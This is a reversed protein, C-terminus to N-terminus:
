LSSHISHVLSAEGLNLPLILSMRALEHLPSIWLGAEEYWLRTDNHYITKASKYFAMYSEFDLLCFLPISCRDEVLLSDCLSRLLFCRLQKHVLELYRVSALSGSAVQLPILLQSIQLAHALAKRFLNEYYRMELVLLVPPLFHM